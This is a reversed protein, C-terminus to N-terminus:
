RLGLDNVFSASPVVEDPSVGLQESIIEKLIPLIEAVEPAPNMAFSLGALRRTLDGLTALGKPPVVCLRETALVSAITAGMAGLLAMIQYSRDQWSFAVMSGFAIVGFAWLGSKVITSRELPPPYGILSRLSMWFERRRQLPIVSAISTSPRLRLAPNGVFERVFRRARCFPELFLCQGPRVAARRAAVITILDGVTLTSEAEDDSITVGFREEVAILLEVGDLGM